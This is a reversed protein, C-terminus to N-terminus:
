KIKDNEPPWNAAKSVWTGLYPMCMDLIEDVDIDDPLCIGENPHKMCYQLAAVVSIAVQLTTASQGSIIERTQHIDLVSGTWWANVYPSGLLLVGVEDAGEIIDDNLIRLTPQLQYNHMRFEVLSSLAPDCPLYAYHVTPRYLVGNNNEDDTYVSLYKSLGYAEGHRIVMGIIEGSPVWSRVWTNMGKTSLCVQNRPGNSDNHFFTGNPIDREHTGWGMEAPAAGEEIFGEISWTNVFENVKKPDNTLQTDRESIHITKINLLYALQPYDKRQLANELQIKNNNSIITENQNLVYEAMDILGRKVFHSVLGPNCGHDLIATPGKKNWKIDNQMEILQMQRHYLTLLRPDNKYKEGFPEWLEISTNVFCVKHDHCWKLLCRTEINYALDLLIDDESLYENLIREYNSETILLQQYKIQNYKILYPELKTSLDIADIITISHIKNVM